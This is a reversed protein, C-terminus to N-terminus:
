LCYIIFVRCRLYMPTMSYRTFVPLPAGGALGSNAALVAAFPDAVVPGYSPAGAFPRGLEAAKPAVSARRALAVVPSPPAKTPLPSYPAFYCQCGISGRKHLWWILLVLLVAGFVSLIVPAAIWARSSEPCTV